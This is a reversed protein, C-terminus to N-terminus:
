LSLNRLQNLSFSRLARSQFTLDVLTSAPSKLCSNNLAQTNLYRAAFTNILTKAEELHKSGWPNMMLFVTRNYGPRDRHPVYWPHQELLSPARVETLVPLQVPRICKYYYECWTYLLKNPVLLSISNCIFQRSNLVRSRPDRWLCYDDLKKCLLQDCISLSASQEQFVFRRKDCETGCMARSIFM